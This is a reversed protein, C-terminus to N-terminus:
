FTVLSRSSLQKLVREIFGAMSYKSLTLSGLQWTSVEGTEYFGQDRYWQWPHTESGLRDVALTALTVRPELLRAYHLGLYMITSGLRRRQASDTHRPPTGGDTHLEVVHVVGNSIHFLGFAKIVGQITGIIWYWEPNRIHDCTHAIDTVPNTRYFNDIIPLPVGPFRAAYANREVFILGLAVQPLADNPSLRYFDVGGVGAIHEMIGERYLHVQSMIFSTDAKALVGRTLPSSM